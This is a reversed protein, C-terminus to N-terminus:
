GARLKRFRRKGVRLVSGDLRETPIDNEGAVVPEEDLSVAGQDIMRRAESRSMGFADAILAPLHVVGSEVGNAAADASRAGGETGNAIDFVYEDVQEPAGRQVFVRDFAREAELAAEPSHLWGVLERALERKAERPPQEADLERGLLLRYYEGMAEDPISLMKGYMEEPEDTIGIHNGLSKSMKRTGDTGVLIPMTMIAQEAQGYARQVDRGLLLNFKQDTGGLEIDAQIAVSDYGQLLPYLLELMSIPESASWRKAFDERELIQAVTTTRVLALLDVMSMDLWEGNRRVELREPSSDLIKLAQQQFTAANAEIEAESLMPRLTSRGSPDGVRATYDGIILVVLHGVEQFERLKRLVVAHGLHIDPATPDIGLKVRLPRGEAGADRLKQALVGTPLSDVSNASLRTAEDQNSAM